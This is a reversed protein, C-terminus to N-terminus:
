TSSEGDEAPAGCVAPANKRLAQQDVLQTNRYLYVYVHLKNKEARGFAVRIIKGPSPLLIHQRRQVHGQSTPGTKAIVRNRLRRCPLVSRTQSPRHANDTTEATAHRTDSGLSTHIYKILRTDKCFCARRLRAGKERDVNLLCKRRTERFANRM